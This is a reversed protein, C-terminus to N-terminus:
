VWVSGCVFNCKTNSIYDTFIVSGVTEINAAHFLVTGSDSVLHPSLPAAQNAIPRYPIFDLGLQQVHTQRRTFM